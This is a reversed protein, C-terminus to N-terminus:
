VHPPPKWGDLWEDLPVVVAPEGNKFFYSDLAYARGDTIDEIVATKHPWEDLFYGREAPTGVRHWHVLGQSVLMTAYTTTNVSEDICDQQSLGAPVLPSRPLDTSTGVIPGVVDEIRGIALALREREEAANLPPPDFIKTVEAWQEASLTVTTQWFCGYGHCVTFSAPTPDPDGYEQVFYAAPKLCAGLSFLAAALVFLRALM